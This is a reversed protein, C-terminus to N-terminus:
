AGKGCSHRAIWILCRIASSVMVPPAIGFRWRVARGMQAMWDVAGHAVEERASAQCYGTWPCSKFVVLSLLSGYLGISNRRASGAEGDM